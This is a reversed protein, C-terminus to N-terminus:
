VGSLWDLVQDAVVDSNAEMMLMHGNGTIGRDALWVFSVKAGQETLWEAVAGDIDRPHDLDNEGTLVLVKKNRFCGPDHVRVQSGAPNQRERLLRAAVPSLMAAYDELKGDPFQTSAGILKGTVFDRESYSLGQRPIKATRTPSSIWVWDADEQVTEGHPQINGPPGPAIGAIGRVRAARLEAVRWGLAGGMSHTVLVVPGEVADIVGALGQCVVEGSITEPDLGGSRGHGPWDPVAVPYGAAVFRYAWGPRGDATIEWCTGTHGGGHLLVLTPREGALGPAVSEPVFHDFFVGGAFRSQHRYSMGGDQWRAAAAEDTARAAVWEQSGDRFEEQKWFPARTKLWDILFETAALADGRHPAAALVLVIPAGPELRGVRHIVTCGLLSWRQEAEVCIRRIARETMGPYHELTMAALPRGPDDRVVGVFCGIGGIDQRGATLGALEAGVDFAERQVLVRAM